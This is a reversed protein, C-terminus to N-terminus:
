LMIVLYKVENWLIFPNMSSRHKGAAPPYVGKERCPSGSSPIPFEKSQPKFTRSGSQVSLTLVTAQFPCESRQSWPHWRNPASPCGCILWLSVLPTQWRHPASPCGCILWGCILWCSVLHKPDWHFHLTSVEATTISGFTWLYDFFYVTLFFYENTEQHTKILATFNNCNKILNIVPKQPNIMILWM